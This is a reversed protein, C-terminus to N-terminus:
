EDTALQWTVALADHVPAQAEAAVVAAKVKLDGSASQGQDPENVLM